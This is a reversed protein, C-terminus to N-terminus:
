GFKEKVNEKFQCYVVKNIETKLTNAPSTKSEKLHVSMPIFQGKSAVAGVLSSNICFIDVWAEAACLMLVTGASRAAFILLAM